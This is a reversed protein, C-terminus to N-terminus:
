PAMRLGAIGGTRVFMRKMASHDVFSPVAVIITADLVAKTESKLV